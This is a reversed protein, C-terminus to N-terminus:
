KRIVRSLFAKIDTPGIELLTRFIHEGTFALVIAVLIKDREGFTDFVEIVWEHGYYGSVVGALLGGITQRRRVIRKEPTEDRPPAATSLLWKVALTLAIAVWLKIQEYNM